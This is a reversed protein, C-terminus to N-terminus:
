LVIICLKAIVGIASPITIKKWTKKSIYESARDLFAVADKYTSSGLDHLIAKVVLNLIHGFYRIQLAEGKFRMIGERLPFEELHDDYKCAILNYLYRYLTDNNSANDATISLLKLLLSYKNLAREVYRALNEGLYSRDIEIFEIYRKYVEFNPGLFSM